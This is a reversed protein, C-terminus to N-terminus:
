PVSKLTTIHQFSFNISGCQWDIILMKGQILITKTAFGWGSKSLLTTMDYFLDWKSCNRTFINFPMSLHCTWDLQYLCWVLFNSSVFQFLRVESVSLFFSFSLFSSSASLYYSDNVHMIISSFIRALSTPNQIVELLTLTTHHTSSTHHPLPLLRLTSRRITSM